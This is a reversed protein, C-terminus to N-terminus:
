NVFTIQWYGPRTDDAEFIFHHDKGGYSLSTGITTNYPMEQPTAQSQFIYNYIGTMINLEGWIYCYTVKRDDNCKYIVRLMEDKPDRFMYVYTNARQSDVFVLQYDKATYQTIDRIMMKVVNETTDTPCIKLQDTQDDQASAQIGISLFLLIKIYKM